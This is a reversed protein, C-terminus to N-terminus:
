MEKRKKTIPNSVRSIANKSEDKDVMMSTRQHNMDYDLTREYKAIRYVVLQNEIHKEYFSTTENYSKENLFESTKDHVNDYEDDGHEIITNNKLEENMFNYFIGTGVNQVQIENVVPEGVMYKYLVYDVVRHHEFMTDNVDSLLHSPKYYEMTNECFFMAKDNLCLQKAKFLINFICLVISKYHVCLDNTNKDKMWSELMHVATNPNLHNFKKMMMLQNAVFIMHELDFFKLSENFDTM